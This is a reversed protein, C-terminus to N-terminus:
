EMDARPRRGGAAIFRDSRRELVPLPVPDLALLADTAHRAPPVTCSRAM